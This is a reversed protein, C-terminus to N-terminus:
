FHASTRAWESVRRATEAIAIALIRLDCVERSRAAVDAQCVAAALVYHAPGIWYVGAPLM